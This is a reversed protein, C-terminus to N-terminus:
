APSAWTSVFKENPLGTIGTVKSTTVFPYKQNYLFLWPADNWVIKAADCYAKQRQATDTGFTAESTAAARAM